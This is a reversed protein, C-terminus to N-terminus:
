MVILVVVDAVTSVPVSRGTGSQASRVARRRGRSPRGTHRHLSGMPKSKMIPMSM